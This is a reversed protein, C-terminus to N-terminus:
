KHRSTREAELTDRWAQEAPRFHVGLEIKARASIYRFGVYSADLVERSLIARQGLLRLPPGSVLGTLRAVPRSLGLFPKIGAPAQKWTEIM